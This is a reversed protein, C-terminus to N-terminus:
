MRTAFVDGNAPRMRTVVSPSSPVVCAVSRSTGALLRVVNHVPPVATVVSLGNPPRRVPFFNPTM